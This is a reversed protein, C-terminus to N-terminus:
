HVKKSTAFKIDGDLGLRNCLKRFHPGHGCKGFEQYSLAHVLEHQIIEQIEERKWMEMAYKHIEIRNQKENYYGLIVKKGFRSNKLPIVEPPNVIGYQCSLKKSIKNATSLKM